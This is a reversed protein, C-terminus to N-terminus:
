KSDELCDYFRPDRGLGEIDENHLKVELDPYVEFLNIGDGTRLRKKVTAGEEESKRKKSGEPLSNDEVEEGDHSHARVSQSPAQLLVAGPIYSGGHDCKVHLIWHNKDEIMSECGAKRCEPCPFSKIFDREHAKRLHLNFGGLTQNRNCLLCHALKGSEKGPRPSHKSGHCLETHSSWAPLGAPVLVDQGKHKCELCHFSQTFNNSHLRQVHATLGARTTYEKFCLFCTSRAPIVKTVTAITDLGLESSSDVTSCQRLYGVIRSAIDCSDEDKVFYPALQEAMKSSSQNQRPRPDSLPVQHLHSISQGTSRLIDAKEFYDKRKKELLKSELVNKTYHIKSLLNKAEKSSLDSMADRQRRWETIDSRAEFTKFEEESIYVPASEDRKSFAEHLYSITKQNQGAVSGYAIGMLDHAIDVPIYSKRFVADTNGFVYSRIATTLAGDLRNGAGVRVSYPKPKSRLGGVLLVRNWLAWYSKYDLPFVHEDLMEEKWALPVYNVTFDPEPYLIKEPTAFDTSFANKFFAM